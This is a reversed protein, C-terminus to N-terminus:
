YYSCDCTVLPAFANRFNPLVLSGIGALYGRPFNTNTSTYFCFQVGSTNEKLELPFVVGRKKSTAPDSFIMSVNQNINNSIPKFYKYSSTFILNSSSDFIEVGFKDDPPEQNKTFTFVELGSVDEGDKYAVYALGKDTRYVLMIKGVVNELPAIACFNLEAADRILTRLRLAGIDFSNYPDIFGKITGADLLSDFAIKRSMKINQYTDDLMKAGSPTTIKFYAM